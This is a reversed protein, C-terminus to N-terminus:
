FLTTVQGAHRRDGGRDGAGFGPNMALPPNQDAIRAGLRQQPPHDFALVLVLDLGPCLFNDVDHLLLKPLRTGLGADGAGTFIGARDTLTFLTAVSRFERPPPEGRTSSATSTHRAAPAAPM